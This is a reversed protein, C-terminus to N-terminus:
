LFSLWLKSIVKALGREREGKENGVEELVSFM